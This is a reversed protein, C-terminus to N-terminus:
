SYHWLIWRHTAASHAAFHNSHIQIKSLTANLSTVTLPGLPVPFRCKKRDNPLLRMLLMPIGFAVPTVKRLLCFIIGYLNLVSAETFYFDTFKNKRMETSNDLGQLDTSRLESMVHVM